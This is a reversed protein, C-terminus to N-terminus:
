NSAHEIRYHVARRCRTFAYALTSDGAITHTPNPYFAHLHVGGTNVAYLLPIASRNELRGIQVFVVRKIPENNFRFVAREYHPRVKRLTKISRYVLQTLYSPSVNDDYLTLYALANIATFCFDTPLYTSM